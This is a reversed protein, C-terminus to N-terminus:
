QPRRFSGWDCGIITGHEAIRSIISANFQTRFEEASRNTILVTDNRASYRRDVLDVLMAMAPAIGEADHVEDIIIFPARVWCQYITALQEANTSGFGAFLPKFMAGLRTLKEYRGPDQPFAVAAREADTFLYNFEVNEEMRERMVQAAITTKGVGRTGCLAVVAGTGRCLEKVRNFAREQRPETWQTVRYHFREPLGKAALNPKVTADWHYRRLESRPLPNVGKFWGEIEKVAEAIKEADLRAVELKKEAEKQRAAEEEDLRRRRELPTESALVEKRALIAAATLEAAKKRDARSLSHNM